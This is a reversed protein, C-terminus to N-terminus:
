LGVSVTVAVRILVGAAGSDRSHRWIEREIGGKLHIIAVGTLLVAVIVTGPLICVAVITLVLVLVLM